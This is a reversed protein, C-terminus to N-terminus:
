LHTLVSTGYRSATAPGRRRSDGTAMVPEPAGPILAFPMVLFYGSIGGRGNRFVEILNDAELARISKRVASM